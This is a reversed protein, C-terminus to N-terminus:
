LAHADRAAQAAQQALIALGAAGEPSALALRAAVGPAIAPCEGPQGSASVVWAAHVLDTLREGPDDPPNSYHRIAAQIAAPFHWQGAIDAGLECHDFGFIERERPLRSESAMPEVALDRWPDPAFHGLLLAGLNHLLGATFAQGPDLGLSKALVGAAAATALSRSAAAADAAAFAGILGASLMLGRLNGFGLVLVAERLSGIQRSLGYFPSNALHLVRAALVPDKGLKRTLEAVDLADDALRPLIARVAPSLGPLRKLGAFIDAKDPMRAGPSM